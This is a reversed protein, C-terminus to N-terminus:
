DALWPTIPMSWVNLNSNDWADLRKVDKIADDHSRPFHVTIGRDSAFYLTRHDLHPEQDTSSGDDGAYHIPTVKGWAGDKGKRVLFLHDKPDDKTRGSSSFVLFSGDPAIEPDVDGLTGDSFSLPAAPLYADGRRAAAYLRKGGKADIAVFYITGDAAISPKWISPGINVTEPLREPKSWGDATRTSKYLNSTAPGVKLKPDIRRSSVFVVYSGDPAFGPSSDPWEGSFAALVPESWVGKVRHSELIVSWRATSRTFLLTNGDASFTPSGDNAPGSIVGPAFLDPAVPAGADAISSLVCITLLARM